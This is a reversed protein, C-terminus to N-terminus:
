PDFRDGPPLAAVPDITRADEMVKEVVVWEDGTAVQAGPGITGPPRDATVGTRSLRVFELPRGALSATPHGWPSEFPSYDAARVLDV